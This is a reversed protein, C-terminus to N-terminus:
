TSLCFKKIYFNIMKKYLKFHQSWHKNRFFQKFYETIKSVIM